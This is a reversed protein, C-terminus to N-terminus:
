RSAPQVWGGAGLVGGARLPSLPVVVPQRSGPEAHEDATAVIIGDKAACIVVRGEALNVAVEQAADGQARVGSPLLWLHVCICVSLVQLFPPFPFRQNHKRSAMAALWSILFKEKRM